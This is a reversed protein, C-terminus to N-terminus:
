CTSSEDRAYPLVYRESVFLEGACGPQEVISRDDSFLWVSVRAVQLTEASVKTALRTM